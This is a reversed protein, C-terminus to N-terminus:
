GDFQEKALFDKYWEPFRSVVGRKIHPWADKWLLEMVMAKCEAETDNQVEHLLPGIDRPTHELKGQERLHQVAKLWRADTRLATIIQTLVDTKTPNSGRWAKANIEKFEPRVYKAFLPKKDKGFRTYNKFVVGEIKQGGLISDLEFFDKFQEVNSVIGRYLIPVTEFGLRAAETAIADYSMYDEPGIMVDFIIVHKAPVRGYALANHKPKALYEGRYVWGPHLDAELTNVAEVGARFMGPDGLIQASKSRVQLEGDIVGFSFQSGDVKETVEVPETFIEKIEPHGLNFIQPYSNLRM